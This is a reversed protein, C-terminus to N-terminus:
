LLKEPSQYEYDPIVNGVNLNHHLNVTSVSAYLKTITNNDFVHVNNSIKINIFTHTGKKRCTFTTKNTIHYRTYESLCLYICQIRLLRHFNKKTAHM